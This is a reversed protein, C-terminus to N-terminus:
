DACRERNCLSTSSSHQLREAQSLMTSEASLSQSNNSKSMQQSSEDPSIAFGGASPESNPRRENMRSLSLIKQQEMSASNSNRQQQLLNKGDVNQNNSSTINDDEKQGTLRNLLMMSNQHSSEIGSQQQTSSLVLPSKPEHKSSEAVSEPSSSNGSETSSGHSHANVATSTECAANCMTYLKTTTIVSSPKTKDTVLLNLENGKNDPHHQYAAIIQPNQDCRRMHKELTSAVSFPMNCYKCNFTESSAGRGHTKMHRTLKSSQACAYNCLECKYPKEGTHSRRHVTLNSCNKFVKGCFECTDNRKERKKLGLINMSNVEDHTQQEKKSLDFAFQNNNSNIDSIHPRKVATSLQPERKVISKDFLKSATPDIANPAIVNSCGGGTGFAEHYWSPNFIPNYYSPFCFTPFHFSMPSNREDNIYTENPGKNSKNQFSSIEEMGHVNSLQQKEDLENSAPELVALSNSRCASKDVSNSCHENAYKHQLRFIHQPHQKHSRQRNGNGTIVSNKGTQPKQQLHNNHQHTYKDEEFRDAFNRLQNIEEFHNQHGDMSADETDFLSENRDHHDIKNQNPASSTVCTGIAIQSTLSSLQEDNNSKISIDAGERYVKIGHNFDLHQMLQWADMFFDSCHACKFCNPEYEDTTVSADTVLPRSSDTMNSENNRAINCNHIVDNSCCFPLNEKNGCTAKHKIFSVIDCLKFDMQCCGCVLIDEFRIRNDM